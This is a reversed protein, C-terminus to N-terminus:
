EYVVGIILMYDMPNSYIGILARFDWNDRHVKLM